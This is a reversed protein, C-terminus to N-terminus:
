FKPCLNSKQLGVLDMSKEWLKKAVGDDMAHQELEQEKCNSFYLGTMGEVKESVILYIISSAAEEPSKWMLWILPFLFCRLGPLKFLSHQGLNTAVMGPHVANVTVQFSELRKSLERTFLVNALKSQYYAKWPDYSKESNLDHFNIRGMKYMYSTLNIIKGQSKKLLNVLLNTLLFHGLYNVALQMEYGDESRWLPSAMLGANNILVDLRTETTLIMRAFQTVSSFSALDLHKFIVNTNKSIKRIKDASDEGKKRDRCALIIRAKRKALDVATAYGIGSNGGTIVVVRGCLKKKSLYRKKPIFKKAVVLLVVGFVFWKIGSLSPTLPPVNSNDAAMNVTPIEGDICVGGTILGGTFCGHVWPNKGLYSLQM